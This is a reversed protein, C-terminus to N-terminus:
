EKGFARRLAHAIPKVRNDINEDANATRSPLSLGQLTSIITNAANDYKPKGALMGSAIRASGLSSAKAQWDAQNTKTQLGTLRRRLVSPNMMISEYIMQSGTAKEYWNTNKAVGKPYNAAARSRAEDWAKQMDSSSVTDM